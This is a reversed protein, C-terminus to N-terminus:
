RPCSEEEISIHEAESIRKAHLACCPTARHEAKHSHPAEYCYTWAWFTHLHDAVGSCYSSRQGIGTETPAYTRICCGVPIAKRLHIVQHLVTGDGVSAPAMPDIERM